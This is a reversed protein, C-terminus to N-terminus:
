CIMYLLQLFAGIQQNEPKIESFRCSERGSSLNRTFGVAYFSYNHGMKEANSKRQEPTIINAM